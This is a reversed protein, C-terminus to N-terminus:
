SDFMRQGLKWLKYIGAILAFALGIIMLWPETGLRGDLWWGGIAMAAAVFGVETAAGLMVLPSPSPSAAKRGGDKRRESEIDAMIQRGESVPWNGDADRVL